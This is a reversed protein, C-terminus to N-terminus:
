ICEVKKTEHLTNWTEILKQKHKNAWGIIIKDEKNTFNSIIKSVPQIRYSGSKEASKVHFHAEYHCQEKSRIEFLFKDKRGVNLPFDSQPVQDWETIKTLLDKIEEQLNEYMNNLDEM